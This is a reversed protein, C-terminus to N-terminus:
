WTNDLNRAPHVGSSIAPRSDMSKGLLRGSAYSDQSPLLFTAYAAAPTNVVTTNMPPDTEIVSGGFHSSTVLKPM